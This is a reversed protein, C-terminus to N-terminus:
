ARLVEGDHVRGDLVRGCAKKDDHVMVVSSDDAGFLDGAWPSREGGQAVRVHHQGKWGVSLTLLPRWNGFQKFFFPIEHKGCDDRLWRFWDPHPARSTKVNGSEGGVIVQNPKIQSRGIMESMRIPGILPELSLFRAAAPTAMLFPYREDFERQRGASTGVHVNPLPWSFAPAERRVHGHDNTFKWSKDWAKQVEAVFAPDALVLSAREIRKTLVQFTHWHALAMTTFVKVLYEAPVDKHFLDSMSAVFIRSPKGWGLPDNLVEPNTRVIKTWTPVGNRIEALGAYRPTHKLRTAAMRAAYCFACSPDELECGAVVPWTMDTWEINSKGM